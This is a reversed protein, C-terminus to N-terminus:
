RRSVLRRSNRVISLSPLKDELNTLHESTSHCEHLRAALRRRDLATQIHGDAPELDDETTCNILSMTEM